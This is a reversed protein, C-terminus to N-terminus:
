LLLILNTEENEIIKYITIKFAIKTRYSYIQITKENDEGAIM